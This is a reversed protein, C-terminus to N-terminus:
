TTMAATSSRGSSTDKCHLADLSITAGTCELLEIIAEVASIESSDANRFREVALVAGCRQSFASVVSVFDQQASDYEVVTSRLAKGDIAILDNAQVGVREGAWAIFAASLATNDVRRLVDRVTVYSPVRKKVGLWSCLRDRHATLFVGIERYKTHGSLAAVVIMMLTTALPHRCGQSRRPDPVSQLHVLLTNAM